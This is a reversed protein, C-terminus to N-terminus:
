DASIENYHLEIGFILSDGFDVPEPQLLQVKAIPRGCDPSDILHDALAELAACLDSYKLPYGGMRVLYRKVRAM